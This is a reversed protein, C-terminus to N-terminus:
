EPANERVAVKQHKKFSAAGNPVRLNRLAELFFTSSYQGMHDAEQM